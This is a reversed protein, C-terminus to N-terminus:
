QNKTSLFKDIFEEETIILVGMSKARQYKLSNTKENCILFSTNASVSGTLKGGHEEICKELEKRNKFHVVTGTVCFTKGSLIDSSILSENQTIKDGVKLENKVMKTVLHCNKSWFEDLKEWMKDGFDDIELFVKGRSLAMHETFTEYSGKCYKSIAKSASKGILPISLSYLLRQLTTERSKEISSLLKEVSKKGFGDLHIIQDKYEALHYIDEISTLWGLNIFKDLTQESLGDINLADRSVAHTLKGLLKGKCDPNSCYLFESDNEKVVETTEGCIPCISPIPLAKSMDLFPIDANYEIVESIQPIIMNAKYVNVKMGKYWCWAEGYTLNTMVSINHLSAREVTTGDLEVPKFVATPTLIGTKGMTWDIDIIETEVEEDKWKLAMMDNSHHSTRGLSQGYMFDNYKIILGDVAFEYNEPNFSDIVEEINYKDAIKHEVVDFGCDKLYEFSEMINMCHDGDKTDQVLEFAKYQINRDKAINANLQRVSGSALNRCNAFKKDDPLSKNIREFDKYSILCEGRVEIDTVYPLQLPINKCARMTHTIDEGVEGNGRSIAQIFKGNKYRLVVTLGDEKWSVVSAHNGMFQKLEEVDKTKKASLMPRTHEVKELESKVEYGVTVTPSNAMIFGTEKELSELEDYLRDYEFDSVLSQSENYYKDRLRNLYATLDKIKQIKNM